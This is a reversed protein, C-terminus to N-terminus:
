IGAQHVIGAMTPAQPLPTSTSSSHHSFLDEIGSIAGWVLGGLAVVEGVVPIASIGSIEALDEVGMTGVKEAVNLCTFLHDGSIMRINIGGTSKTGDRQRAILSISEAVTNRIPDEIGFTCLYIM